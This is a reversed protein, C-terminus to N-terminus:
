NGLGSKQYFVNAIPQEDRCLNKRLMLRSPADGQVAVRVLNGGTEAQYGTPLDIRWSLTRIFLPTKPLTLEVTGDVPEIAEVRGTFACSVRNKAGGAPLGILISGEGAVVPTVSRDGVECSLLTLGPPIDLPFGSVSRYDLTMTGEVLMAGDPEVRTQWQAETVTAEAVAVVPLPKVSLDVAAAAELQYCAAGNLEDAFGAPLGKPTFPGELGDASYTLDASGSVIFRTRTADDGAAAPAQLKWVRDLPRRPLTYTIGVERELLGRTKWTVELELSRDPRRTVKHGALDDGGVMVTRADPPLAVSAAVGSGGAASANALVRYRIAGDEPIVLAQQQWTWVSPEPPRLAERTEEGGLMRMSYSGGALPLAISRNAGLVQDRGNIKVAVSWEDGLEGTEFIAAPCPPVVLEAGDVGSAPLLKLELVQTGAVDVAHCLMEERVVVRADSPQQSEITLDGGALPVYALGDAFTATRFTAAIVPKGDVMTLRYRASLLSPVVQPVAAAKGAGAILSKLEAYPLRVEAEDLAPGALALNSVLASVVLPKLLSSM